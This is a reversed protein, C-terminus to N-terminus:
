GLREESSLERDILVNIQGQSCFEVRAEVGYVEALMAPTIVDAPRGYAYLKGQHLVAMKDAWRAALGLDHLVAIVIRGETAIRRVEALLRVQRAIDLASTPEDLLLLRPDRVIAQALSVMQRQGGSLKDLPELALNAIGLRALIAMAHTEPSQRAHPSTGSARLAAIISELVVLASGSPLTQPMFGIREARAGISLAALDVGDLTFRGEVKAIRAIGKLLTSKGAANPGALVTVEGPVLAPLTFGNLVSRKGYRIAANEILLGTSM